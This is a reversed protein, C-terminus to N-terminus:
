DEGEMEKKIIQKKIYSAVEVSGYKSFHTKDFYIPYGNEILRCYKDTCFYNNPNIMTINGKLSSAKTFHATMINSIKITLPRCEKQFYQNKYICDATSNEDGQTDPIIFYEKDIGIDDIMKLLQESIFEAAKNDDTFSLTNGSKYGSRSSGKSWSSAFIVTKINNVAIYDLVKQYMASCSPVERGRNFRTIDPLILCGFNTMYHLSINQKNLGYLYQKAYSDGVILISSDKSGLVGAHTFGEGGYEFLSKELLSGNKSTDFRSEVGQFNWIALSLILTTIFLALTPLKKKEILEYSIYAMMVSSLMLPLIWFDSLEFYGKLVVFPWHWLYISYSWVGIKKFIYSSTLVSNQRQAQLIMFAGFVPITALTGPWIDESSIFIYSLIILSLGIIEVIKKQNITLALPYIFVLGGLLMEWARTPLLYYSMNPWQSSAYICFVFGIITALLLTFKMTAPKLVRSIALLIVPYIIYFQWEASLSWTHLLWKKHSSLDFYGAERWYVINSFFSISSSIHKALEQYDTPTLYFWGFVLLVICLAALAPVIRQARAKYFGIVSFSNHELKTLIIRTMLYGSIVFFVDVGAFGGSLWSPNFHFIVVAIVAIARLGNIDERFVL